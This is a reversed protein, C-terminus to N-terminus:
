AAEGPMADRANFALNLVASEIQAADAMAAMAKARITASPSRPGLTRELLPILDPLERRSRHACTGAASAACLRPTPDHPQSRTQAAWTAREIRQLMREDGSSKARAFELNGLIVQLLNNFDHAIGGTLQGIAQMKQAERLVSEAEARKTM